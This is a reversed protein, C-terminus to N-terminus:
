RASWAPVPEAISWLDAEASRRPMTSTWGGANRASLSTTRPRTPYFRSRAGSGSRRPPRAEAADAESGVEELRTAIGKVEEM